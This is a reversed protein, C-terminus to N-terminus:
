ENHYQWLVANCHNHVAGITMGTNHNHHLHIPHKFFGKPFLSRKIAKGHSKHAPNGGLSSHCYYCRGKQLRVYQLRVQRREENTLKNYNRPLKM